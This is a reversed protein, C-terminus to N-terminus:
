SAGVFDPHNTSRQRYGFSSEGRRHGFEGGACTLLRQVTHEHLRHRRAANLVEAVWSPAHIM